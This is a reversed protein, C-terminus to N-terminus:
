KGPANDDYIISQTGGGGSPSVYSPYSPTYSGGSSGSSASSGGRSSSRSNLTQNYMQNNRNIMGWTMASMQQYSMGSRRKAPQPKAEQQASGWSQRRMQQGGDSYMQQVQPQGYANSGIWRGDAGYYKNHFEGDSTVVRLRQTYDAAFEPAVHPSEIPGSSTAGSDTRLSTVPSIYGNVEVWQTTTEPAPRGITVVPTLAGIADTTTVVPQSGGVIVPPTYYVPTRPSSYIPRRSFFRGQASATEVAFLAAVLGFTWHLRHLSM